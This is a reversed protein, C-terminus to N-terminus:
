RTKESVKIVYPQATNITLYYRGRGRMITSDNNKGIVNAVINVLDGNAKYVYIQFNMDGYEGPKTAWTITWTNTSITFTETNKISSGKWQAIERWAKKKPQKKIFEWTGDIKLLVQRGDKTTAILSKKIKPKQQATISLTLILCICVLILARTKM